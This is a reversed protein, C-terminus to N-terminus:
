IGAAYNALCCALDILMEFVDLATHM